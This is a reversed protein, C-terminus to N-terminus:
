TVSRLVAGQREIRLLLMMCRLAQLACCLKWSSSCLNRYGAIPRYLVRFTPFSPVSRADSGVTGGARVRSGLVEWVLSCLSELSM